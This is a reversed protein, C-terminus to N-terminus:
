RLAAIERSKVVMNEKCVGAPVEIKKLAFEKNKYMGKHVSDFSDKGIQEKFQVEGAHVM